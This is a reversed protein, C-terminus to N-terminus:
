EETYEDLRGMLSEIKSRILGKLEDQERESVIKEQLQATLHQNQQELETKTNELRKCTEVLYEIKKELKDFQQLVTEQDLINEM